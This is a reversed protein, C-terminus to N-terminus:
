GHRLSHQVRCRSRSVLPDIHKSSLVGHLVRDSYYLYCVSEGGMNENM